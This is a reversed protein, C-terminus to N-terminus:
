HAHSAPTMSFHIPRIRCDGVGFWFGGEALLAMNISEAAWLVRGGDPPGHATARSPKTLALDCM